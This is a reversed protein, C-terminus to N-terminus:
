SARATQGDRIIPCVFNLIKHLIIYCIIRELFTVHHMYRACLVIRQSITFEFVAFPDVEGLITQVAKRSMQLWDSATVHILLISVSTILFKLNSDQALPWLGPLAKQEVMHVLQSALVLFTLYQDMVQQWFAVM